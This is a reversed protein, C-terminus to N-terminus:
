PKAENAALMRGLEDRLPGIRPLPQAEREHNFETADSRLVKRVVKRSM